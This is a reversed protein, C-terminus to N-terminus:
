PPVMVHLVRLRWLANIGADYGALADLMEAPAAPSSSIKRRYVVEGGGHERQFIAAAKLLLDANKKTNDLL